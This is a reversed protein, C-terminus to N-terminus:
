KPCDQLPRLGRCRETRGQAGRPSISCCLGEAGVAAALLCCCGSSCQLVSVSVEPVACLQSDPQTSLMHTCLLLHQAAALTLPVGACGRFVLLILLLLLVTHAPELTGSVAVRCNLARCLLQLAKVCPSLWLVLPPSGLPSRPTLSIPVFLQGWLILSPLFSQLGLCSWPYCPVPLGQQQVCLLSHLLASRGVSM